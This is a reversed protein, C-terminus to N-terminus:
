RQLEAKPNDKKIDDINVRTLKLHTALKTDWDLMEHAIDRLDRDQSNDWDLQYSLFGHSATPLSSVYSAFDRGTCLIHPLSFIIVLHFNDASM